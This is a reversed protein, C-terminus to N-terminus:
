QVIVRSGKSSRTINLKGLCMKRDGVLGWIGDTLGGTYEQLYGASLWYKLPM